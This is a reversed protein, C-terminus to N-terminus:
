AGWREDGRHLWVCTTCTNPVAAGPSRHLFKPFCGELVLFFLFQSQVFSESVLDDPEDLLGM